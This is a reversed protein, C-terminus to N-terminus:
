WEVGPCGQEQYSVSSKQMPETTRPGAESTRETARDKESPLTSRTIDSRTGDTNLATVPVREAAIVTETGCFKWQFAAGASVSPKAIHRCTSTSRTDGFKGVRTKSSM